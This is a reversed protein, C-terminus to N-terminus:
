RKEGEYIFMAECNDDNDILALYEDLSQRLEKNKILIVKLKKIAMIEIQRVREPSINLVEAIEAYTYERM